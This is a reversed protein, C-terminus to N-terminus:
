PLINLVYTRTSPGDEFTRRGIRMVADGGGAPANIVEVIASGDDAVALADLLQDGEGGIWHATVAGTPDVRAVFSDIGSADPLGLAASGHDVYKGGLVAGQGAAAIRTRARSFLEDIAVAWRTAGNGDLSVVFTRSEAPGQLIRDGLDLVGREFHGVVVYGGDATRAADAILYFPPDFGLRATGAWTTTWTAAGSGDLHRLTIHDPLNPGVDRWGSAVLLGDTADPFVSSGSSVDTSWRSAGTAPDLVLVQTGREGHVILSAPGALISPGVPGWAGAVSIDRRWLPKGTLSLARLEQADGGLVFTATDSVALSSGTGALDVAVRGREDLRHDFYFVTDCSLCAVGGAAAVVDTAHDFALGRRLEGAAAPGPKGRLTRTEDLDVPECPGRSCGCLAFLASVSWSWLWSM